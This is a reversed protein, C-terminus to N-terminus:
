IGQIRKLRKDLEEILRDKDEVPLLFLIVEAKSSRLRSFFDSHLAQCEISFADFYQKSEKHHGVFLSSNYTAVMPVVLQDFVEDLRTSGEMLQRWYDVDPFSQPLRRKILIFERRLFGGTVHKAVDKALNRVGDIGDKYLKSEGLWLKKPGDSTVHVADFGHAAVNTSDKFYIKSILPLTGCFDRLLLHLILEGFEGRQQYKDTTYVVQAAEQLREVVENLPIAIGEHYGLAFEPIVKRITEVLPILRFEGGDFGVHYARLTPDCIREDIM